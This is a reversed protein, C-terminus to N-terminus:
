SAAEAGVFHVESHGQMTPHLAPFKVKEQLQLLLISWNVSWVLRRFSNELMHTIDVVALSHTVWKGRGKIPIWSKCNITTYNQFNWSYVHEWFGCFILFFILIQQCFGCVLCFFYRQIKDIKCRLELLQVIVVLFDALNMWQQLYVTWIIWMIRKYVKRLICKVYKKM